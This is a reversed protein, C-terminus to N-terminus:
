KLPFVFSVLGGFLNPLNHVYKSKRAPYAKPQENARQACWVRKSLSLDCSVSASTSTTEHQDTGSAYWLLMLVLHLLCDIILSRPVQIWSSSIPCLPTPFADVGQWKSFSLELARTARNGYSCAEVCSRSCSGPLGHNSLPSWHSEDAFGVPVM